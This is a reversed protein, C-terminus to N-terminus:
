ANPWKEVLVQFFMWITQCNRWMFCLWSWWAWIGSLMSVIWASLLLKRTVKQRPLKTQRRYVYWFGMHAWWVKVEMSISLFRCVLIVCFEFEVVNCFSIVLTIRLELCIVSLELWFHFHNSDSKLQDQKQFKLSSLQWRRYSQIRGFM